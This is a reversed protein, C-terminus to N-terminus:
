RMQDQHDSKPDGSDPKVIVVEFLSHPDRALALLRTSLLLLAYLLYVRNHTGIAWPCSLWIESGRTKFKGRVGCDFMKLPDCRM